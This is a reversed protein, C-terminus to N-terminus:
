QSPNSAERVPRQWKCPNVSKHVCPGTAKVKSLHSYVVGREAEVLAEERGRMGWSPWLIIKEPYSFPLVSNRLFSSPPIPRGVTTARKRTNTYLLPTRCLIWVAEATTSRVRDKDGKEKKRIGKSGKSKQGKIKSRLDEVGKDEGEEEEEKEEEEEEEENRTCCLPLGVYVEIGVAKTGGGRYDSEKLKRIEKLSRFKDNDSRQTVIGIM